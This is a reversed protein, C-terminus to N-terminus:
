KKRTRKPKEQTEIETTNTEQEIMEQNKREEEQKEDLAVFSNLVNYVIGITSAFAAAQGDIVAAQRRLNESQSLCNQRNREADNMIQLLTGELFGKSDDSVLGRTVADNLRKRLKLIDEAYSM